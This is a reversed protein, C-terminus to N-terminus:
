DREGLYRRTREYSEAPSVTMERVMAHIARSARRIERAAQAAGAHVHERGSRDAGGRAVHRADRLRTNAAGGARVPFVYADAGFKNSWGWETEVFMAGLDRTRHETRPTGDGHGPTAGDGARDIRRRGCGRRLPGRTQDQGGKREAIAWLVFSFPRFKWWGCGGFGPHFVGAGRHWRTGRAKRHAVRM